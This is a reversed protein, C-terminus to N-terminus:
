PTLHPISHAQNQNTHKAVLTLLEHMQFPKELFDDAGAARAHSLSSRAASIMIVPVDRTAAQTKLHRCVDVGDIDPMKNDLIFLDTSPLTSKLM